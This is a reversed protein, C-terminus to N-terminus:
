QANNICAQLEATPTWGCQGNTQRECKATRYCAYEERYECTSALGPTDTCIQGSCGGTYCAQSPQVPFSAPKDTVAYEFRYEEPKIPRPGLEGPYPTASTLTILKGGFKKEAGVEMEETSILSGSSLKTSVVIRGAWFCRADAPCRSDEVISLPTITVGNITKSAGLKLAGTEVPSPSGGTNTGTDTNSGNDADTSPAPNPNPSSAAKYNSVIAWSALAVALLVASILINRKM